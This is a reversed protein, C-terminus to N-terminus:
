WPLLDWGVEIPRPTTGAPASAASRLTVAMKGSAGPKRVMQGQSPSTGVADLTLSPGPSMAGLATRALSSLM